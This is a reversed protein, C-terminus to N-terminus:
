DDWEVTRAMLAEYARPDIQDKWKEALRKIKAEKAAKYCAFAEEVTPFSGLYKDLGNSQRDNMQAVFSGSGKNFCVGIPHQGRKKSKYCGSLLVNIEAPIFTCTDPGYVRNGKVLIDKDLEFGADHGVQSLAWAVFESESQWGITCDLYASLKGVRRTVSQYVKRLHVTSPHFGYKAKYKESKLRKKAEVIKQVVADSGRDRHKKLLQQIRQRSVTRFHAVIDDVSSEEYNM